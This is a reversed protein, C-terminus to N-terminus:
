EADAGGREKNVTNAIAVADDWPIMALEEDGQTVRVFKVPAEDPDIIETRTQEVGAGDQEDTM